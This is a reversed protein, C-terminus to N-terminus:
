ILQCSFSKIPGRENTNIFCDKCIWQQLQTSVTHQELTDPIQAAPQESNSLDLRSPSGHFVSQVRNAEGSIEITITFLLSLLLTFIDQNKVNWLQLYQIVFLYINTSFRLIFAYSNGFIWCECVISDAAIIISIIFINM